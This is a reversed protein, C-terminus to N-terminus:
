TGFYLHELFCDIFFNTPGAFTDTTGNSVSSHIKCLVNQPNLPQKLAADDM